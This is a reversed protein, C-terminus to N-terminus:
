FRFWHYCLMRSAGGSTRQGQTYQLPFRVNCLTTTRQHHTGWHKGSFSFFLDRLLCNIPSLILLYHSMGVWSVQKHFLSGQELFHQCCQKMLVPSLFLSLNDMISDIPKSVPKWLIGCVFSSTITHGSSHHSGTAGTHLHPTLSWCLAAAAARLHCHPGGQAWGGSKSGPAPVSWSCSFMTLKFSMLKNLYSFTPNMFFILMPLCIRQQCRWFGPLQFGGTFKMDSGPGESAEVCSHNGPLNQPHCEPPLQSEAGSSSLRSLGAERSGLSPPLLWSSPWRGERLAAQM